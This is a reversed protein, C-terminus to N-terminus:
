GGRKELYEHLAEEIVAYDKMKNQLAYMKMRMVLSPLQFTTYKERREEEQFPASQVAEPTEPNRPNPTEPTEGGAKAKAIAGFAGSFKGAPKSM